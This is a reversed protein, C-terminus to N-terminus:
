ILNQKFITKSGSCTGCLFILTNYAYQKTKTKTKKGWIILAM